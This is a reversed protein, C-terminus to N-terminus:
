HESRVKKPRALIFGNGDVGDYNYVREMDAELGHRAWCETLWQQDHREESVGLMSDEISKLHPLFHTGDAKSLESRMSCALKATDLINMSYALWGAVWAKEGPTFREFDTNPSYFDPHPSGMGNNLWDSFLDVEVRLAREFITLEARANGAALWYPADREPSLGSENKALFAQEEVSGRWALALAARAGSSWLSPADSSICSKAKEVWAQREKFDAPAGGGQESCHEIRALGSKWDNLFSELAVDQSPHAGLSFFLAFLAFVASRTNKMM